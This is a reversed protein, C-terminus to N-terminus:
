RSHYHPDAPGQFTTFDGGMSSFMTNLPDNSGMYGIHGTYFPAATNGMSHVISPYTNSSETSAQSVLTATSHQQQIASSAPNSSAGPYPPAYSTPASHWATSPATARQQQVSPTYNFSHAAPAFAAPTSIGATAGDQEEDSASAEQFTFRGLVNSGYAPPIPINPIFLAGDQLKNLHHDAWPLGPPHFLYEGYPEKKGPPPHKPSATATRCEEILNKVLEVDWGKRSKAAIDTALALLYEYADNVTAVKLGRKALGKAPPADTLQDPECEDFSWLTLNEEEAINLNSGKIEQEYSYTM